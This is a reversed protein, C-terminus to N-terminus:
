RASRRAEQEEILVARETQSCVRLRALELHVELDIPTDSAVTVMHAPAIQHGHMDHELARGDEGVHSGSVAFVLAGFGLRPPNPKRAVRVKILRKTAVNRYVKDTPNISADLTDVHAYADDRINAADSPDPM